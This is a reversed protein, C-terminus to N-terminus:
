SCALEIDYPAPYEVVLLQCGYLLPQIGGCMSLYRQSGLHKFGVLSHASCRMEVALIGYKTFDGLAEVNNFLDLLCSSVFVVTWQSIDANKAGGDDAIGEGGLWLGCFGDGPM